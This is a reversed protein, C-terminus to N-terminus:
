AEERVHIGRIQALWRKSLGPRLEREREILQKDEGPRCALWECLTRLYGVRPDDHDELWDAYVLRTTSDSPNARISDLFAEEAPDKENKSPECVICRLHKGESYEGWLLVDRFDEEAAAIFEELLSLNGLALNLVARHMRSPSEGPACAKTEWETLIQIALAYDEPFFERRVREKAKIALRM